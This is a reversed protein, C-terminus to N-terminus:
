GVRKGPPRRGTGQEVWASAGGESATLKGPHQHSPHGAARRLVGYVAPYSNKDRLTPISLQFFVDRSGCSVSTLLVILKEVFDLNGSRFKKVLSQNASNRTKDSPPLVSASVLLKLSPQSHTLM